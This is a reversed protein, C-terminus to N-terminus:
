PPIPSRDPDCRVRGHDRRRRHPISTVTQRGATLTGTKDTCIVTAAGLSEVATLRRTLARRRAMRRIGVALAITITAPLGEPVSAIALALGTEIMTAWTEGRLIGLLTVLAGAGVALLILRRGLSDLRRQLPTREEGIDRVLAGIRGIQTAEGTAVVV